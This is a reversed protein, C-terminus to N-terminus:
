RRVSPSAAALGPPLTRVPVSEGTVCTFSPACPEARIDQEKRDIGCTECVEDQIRNKEARDKAKYLRRKQGIDEMMAKGPM